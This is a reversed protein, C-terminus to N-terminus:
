LVQKLVERAVHRAAAALAIRGARFTLAGGILFGVGIGAALSALPRERIRKALARALEIVRAQLGELEISDPGLNRITRLPSTADPRVAPRQEGQQGAAPERALVPENAIVVSM